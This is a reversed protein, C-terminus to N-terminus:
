HTLFSYSNDSITGALECRALATHHFLSQHAQFYAGM